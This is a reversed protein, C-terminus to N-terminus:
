VRSPASGELRGSVKQKLPPGPEAEMHTCKPPMPGRLGLSIGFPLM